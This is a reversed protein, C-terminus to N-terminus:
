IEVADLGFDSKSDRVIRCVRVDYGCRHLLERVAAIDSNPTGLGFCVQKLHSKEIAHVGKSRRIIRVEKEYCWPAAKVTLAKKVLAIGFDDFSSVSLATDLFWDSLPNNRYDVKDVGLLHDANASFFSEPFSYTLCVGCHGGAYHAWMLTNRLELSFACVGLNAVDAMVKKLMPDLRRFQELKKRSDPPARSIANELANPIDVRCDLPDNLQEPHAFYIESQVLSKLLCKNITRFKFLVHESM